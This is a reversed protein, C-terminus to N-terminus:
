LPSPMGDQDDGRNNLHHAIDNMDIADCDPPGRPEVLLNKPVFKGSVFGESSNIGHSKSHWFRLLMAPHHPHAAQESVDMLPRSAEEYEKPKLMISRGSPNFFPMNAGVRKRSVKGPTRPTQLLIDLPLPQVMVTPSSARARKPPPFSEEGDSLLDDSDEEILLRSPTTAPRKRTSPGPTAYSNAPAQTQANSHRQPRVPTIPDEGTYATYPNQAATRVREIRRPTEPPTTAGVVTVDITDDEQLVEAIQATLRARLAREEDTDPADRVNGWTPKWTPKTTQSLMRYQAEITGPELGPPPIGYAALHERFISNFARAREQLSLHDEHTWLLHLCVRQEYDWRNRAKATTRAM